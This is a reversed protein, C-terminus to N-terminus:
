LVFIVVTQTRTGRRPAAHVELALGVVVLSARGDVVVVTRGVVVVVNGGVVVVFGGANNGGVVPSVDSTAASANRKWSPNVTTRFGVASSESNAALM